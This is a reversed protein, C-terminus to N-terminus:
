TWGQPLAVIFKCNPCGLCPRSNVPHRRGLHIAKGADEFCRPCFPEPEGGHPPVAWLMGERWTMALKVALKDQLERSQRRLERNEEILDSLLGQYRLILEQAAIRVEGASLAILKQGLTTLAGLTQSFNM